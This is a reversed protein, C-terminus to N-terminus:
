QLGGILFTTGTADYAFAGLTKGPPAAYSIIAGAPFSAGLLIGANSGFNCFSVSTRGSAITGSNTFPNYSPDLIAAPLSVPIVSQNSAVAVSISNAMLAQGQVLSSAIAKLKAHISGTISAADTALGAFTAFIGDTALTVPIANAALAAGQAPIRSVFLWIGSLWGFWGSGGAPMVAGTIPTGIATNLNSLNTADVNSLAISWNGVQRAGVNENAREINAAIPPTGLILGTTFNVWIIVVTPTSSNNADLIAIRSLLDGTSYGTGNTLVDYFDTITDKDTTSLPRLGVGPSATTGTPDTFSVTITGTSENVIDRRNYFVGSNDTWITSAIDIQAKIADRVQQLMTDTAANTPLPLSTASVPQTGQYFNGAVSVSGSISVTGDSGISVKNTTGPTTQDIKFTADSAPTISLSNAATKTGLGTPLRDRIEEEVGIQTTQNFSTAGGSNGGISLLNGEADVLNFKQYPTEVM